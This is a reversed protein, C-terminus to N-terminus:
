RAAAGLTQQVREAEALHKSVVGRKKELMGALAADKAQPVAKAILDLAARHALVQAEIYARDFAAAKLGSLKKMDKRGQDKIMGSAPSDAPRIGSKKAFDALERNSAGHEERMMTAFAKVAPNAAKKLAAQAAKIEVDNAAKLAGAIQADTMTTQPQALAPMTLMSLALVIWETRM